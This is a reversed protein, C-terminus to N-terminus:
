DTAIILKGEIKKQGSLLINYSYVGVALKLNGLFIEDSKINEIKEVLVGSSNYLLFTANEKQPNDFYLRSLSQLPMPIIIAKNLDLKIFTIGIIDSNGYTDLNIRYYNRVNAVPNTHTFSYRESATSNGCIGPYDYISVFNVSDTSHEVKLESCSSGGSLEWNILISNPYRNVEFGTLISPNQARLLSGSIFLLIFTLQKM